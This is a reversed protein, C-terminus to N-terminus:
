KSVEKKLAEILDNRFIPQQAEVNSQLYHQGPVFKGNVTRHGYEVHPAYDKTYGMEGSAGNGNPMTVSASLRLEGSDVPTGGNVARNRLETLNKECVKDLKVQSLKRLDQVLKEIDGELRIKM